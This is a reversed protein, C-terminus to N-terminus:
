QRTDNPPPIDSSRYISITADPLIAIPKVHSLRDFYHDPGWPGFQLSSSVAVYRTPATFRPPLGAHDTGANIIHAQGLVGYLYPDTNGFYYTTLDAYEPRTKQWDALQLLGQGWDLNSDALVQRGAIPGGGLANFYSLEHPHISAVSAAQGALGVLLVARGLRGSEALGSCWVIALPSLPLLYRIGYNRSSVIAVIVLFTVITVTILREDVHWRFPNTPADDTKRRPDFQLFCLRAVVMLGVSLPMKVVLCVLYYYWWGHMRREGFLYSSGGARQFSLQRIFAVWDQPLPVELVRNAIRGLAPGFRQNIVPHDGVHESIPLTAFGTLLLNTLIMVLGFGLMGRLVHFALAGAARMRRNANPFRPCAGPGRPTKWPKLASSLATLWDGNEPRPEGHIWRELFWAVALIPPFLFGTFKFSFAVGAMIASLHFWRRRSTELFRTFSFFMATSAAILPTEMTIVAGHAILNPSLAYLWAAATMARLGYRRRAWFITLLFGAGWIWSAVNRVIPLLAKQYRLPEDVWKKTGPGDLLLLAPVQQLKWFTVPSGMRTMPEQEGTRWWIGAVQLYTAEDYTASNARIPGQLLAFGAIM